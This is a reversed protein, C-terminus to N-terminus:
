GCLRYRRVDVVRRGSRLRAVLRVTIRGAHRGRLDVVVRRRHQTGVRAGRVYLAVSRVRRGRLGRVTVTM